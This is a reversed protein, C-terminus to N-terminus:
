NTKLLDLIKVRSYLVVDVVFNERIKKKLTTAKVYNL